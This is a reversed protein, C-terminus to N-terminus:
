WTPQKKFNVVEADNRDCMDYILEGRKNPCGLSWDKHHSNFDGLLISNSELLEEILILDREKTYPHVYVSYIKVNKFNKINVEVCVYEIGNELNHIKIKKISINHRIIIAVGSARRNNPLTHIVKYGNFKLKRSNKTLWTEQLALVDLKAEIMYQYLEDKRKWLSRTNISAVKLSMKIDSDNNKLVKNFNARQIKDNFYRTLKLKKLDKKINNRCQHKKNKNYGGSNTTNKLEIKSDKIVIDELIKPGLLRKDQVSKADLSYSPNCPEQPRFNKSLVPRNEEGDIRRPMKARESDNLGSEM